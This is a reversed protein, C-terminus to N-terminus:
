IQWSRLYRIATSESKWGGKLMIRELSEGNNLMDLAAGVRFSHGSLDNDLNIKTEHQIQKLIRCLSAPCLKETISQNKLVGRLIYGNNGVREQWKTLLQNLDDSISILKGHGFQDTKSFSLRIAAKGNPLTSIDKFKFSCIESRRRMTEYGLTLLVRNRMGRNDNSCSIIMKDLIDRTLPEAQRQANGKSRQMRKLALIVESKTFPSPRDLLNFISTLSAIRRRITASSKHNALYNIYEAAKKDSCELAALDNSSCWNSFDNFDSRYARITNPAFAGDFKEFLEEIM